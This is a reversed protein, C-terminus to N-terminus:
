IWLNNTLWGSLLCNHYILSRFTQKLYILSPNFRLALSLGTLIQQQKQCNNFATIKYHLVACEPMINNTSFNINFL